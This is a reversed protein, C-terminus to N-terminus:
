NKKKGMAIRVLDEIKQLEVKETRYKGIPSNLKHRPKPTRIPSPLKNSGTQAGPGCKDLSFLSM